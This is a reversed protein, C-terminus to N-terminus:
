GTHSAVVSRARALMLKRGPLAAYLRRANAEISQLSHASSALSSFVDTLFSRGPHSSSNNRAASTPVRRKAAVQRGVVDPAAASCQQAGARVSRRRCSCLRSYRRRRSNKYNQGGYDCARAIMRPIGPARGSFFSPQYIATLEADPIGGIAGGAPTRDRRARLSDAVPSRGIQRFATM